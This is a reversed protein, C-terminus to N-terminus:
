ISSFLEFAGILDDGIQINTDFIMRTQYRNIVISKGDDEKGEAIRAIEQKRHTTWTKHWDNGRTYAYKKSRREVDQKYDVIDTEWAEVQDPINTCAKM